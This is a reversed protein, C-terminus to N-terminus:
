NDFSFNFLKLEEVNNNKLFVLRIGVGLKLVASLLAMHEDGAGSSMNIAVEAGLSENHLAAVIEDSLIHPPKSFDFVLLKVNEQPKFNEKGFNNTILFVKDWSAGNIIGRVCNWTGKGTSLCALLVTM